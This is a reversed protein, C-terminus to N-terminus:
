VKGAERGRRRVSRGIWWAGALLMALPLVAGLLAIGGTVVALFNRWAARLADRLPDSGPSVALLEIPEELNVVLTSVAVRQGLHRLRGQLMEIRQRVRGLEREVALLDELTGTRSDLLELYREELRQANALQATLDVYQEGVDETATSLQRLRGIGQLGAVLEDWREAPVKVELRALRRERKGLSLSSHAIWGGLAAAARRVGAIGQELSDVEVRAEGTRIIMREAGAAPAQGTQWPIAEADPLTYEATGFGVGPAARPPPPPSPAAEPAEAAGDAAGVVSHESTVSLVERRDADSCALLALCTAVAFRAVRSSSDPTQM